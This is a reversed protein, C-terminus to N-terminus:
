ARNYLDILYMGIQYSFKGATIRLDDPIHRFFGHCEYTFDGEYGIEKLLPMIEEWKTSGGVFPILHSDELGSNEQVHTAKLRKGLKRLQPVQNRYVMQAHGFDWCGGVSTDNLADIIAIQEEVAATYRRKTRKPDFEAMNEIAIGVGLKKALEVQWGYFELNTKLNQADDYEDSLLDTQAHTVMWKVGLLASAEISRRTSEMFLDYAEGTLARDKSWIYSHFPSHSQSFTVGIKEAYDRVEYIQSKWDDGALINGSKPDNASCFNADIVTFGCERCMSMSEKFTTTEGQRKAPFLCTSTALKM